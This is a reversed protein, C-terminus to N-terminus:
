KKLISEPNFGGNITISVKNYPYPYNLSYVNKEFEFEITRNEEAADRILSKIANVTNNKLDSIKNEVIDM